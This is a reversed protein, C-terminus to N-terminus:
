DSFLALLDGHIRSNTAIASGSSWVDAGTRGDFASFSGGAEAIIIAIPALDWPFAKPDVMAEVQGTAVLAYGYADGWTRLKVPSDLLVRLAADPWYGFGSTCVFAGDIGERDNVRCPEGNHFAGLGRGAWITEGLAPLNIVGVAPGHEDVLALLNAFLPVGRMFAKTGDIPDIVWTRGSTGSTDPHEEGLVSDNPFTDNLRERMLTEVALDAATVPSGDHKHDISFASGRYWELTLQGAERAIEVCTDLDAPNATGLRTM